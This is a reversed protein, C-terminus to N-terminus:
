VICRQAVRYAGAGAKRRKTTALPFQATTGGNDFVRMDPDKGVNGMLIVKNVSM